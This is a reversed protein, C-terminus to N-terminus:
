DQKQTTQMKLAYINFMSIVVLVIVVFSLTLSFGDLKDFTSITSNERLAMMYKEQTMRPRDSIFKAVDERCALKTIVAEVTDVATKVILSLSLLVGTTLLKRDHTGLKEKEYLNQHRKMLAVVCKIMLITYLLSLVIYIAIGLNDEFFGNSRFDFMTREATLIEFMEPGTYASLATHVVGALVTVACLVKPVHMKVQADRICVFSLVMCVASMVDPLIDVGEVRLVVTFLACLLLFICSASVRATIHKKRNEEIENKYIESLYGIYIHDKRINNFFRVTYYVFVIGTVLQVFISLATAYPKLSAVSMTYSANASLDLDEGQKIFEFIEPMFTIGCKVVTFLMSVAYVNDTLNPTKGWACRMTTYEFGAYLKHFFACVFIIELVGSIFTFPLSNQSYGVLTFSFATKVAYIGILWLSIKRADEFYGDTFSAKKLGLYILLAGIVDPLVDFLEVCPNFFFVLGALVLGFSVKENKASM